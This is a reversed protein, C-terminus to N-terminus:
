EIEAEYLQEEDWRQQWKTEIEQPNYKESMARTM